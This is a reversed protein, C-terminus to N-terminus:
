AIHLVPAVYAFCGLGAFIYVFITKTFGTQSRYIVPNLMAHVAPLLKATTSFYYFTNGVTEQGSSSWKLV